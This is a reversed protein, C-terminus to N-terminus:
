ALPPDLPPPAYPAYEGRSVYFIPPLQRDIGKFPRGAASVPGIEAISPKFHLLFIM